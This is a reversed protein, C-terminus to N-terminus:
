PAAGAPLCYRATAPQCVVPRSATAPLVPCASMAVAHGRRVKTFAASAYISSSHSNDIWVDHIDVIDGHQLAEHLEVTRVVTESKDM